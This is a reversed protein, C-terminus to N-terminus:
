GQRLSRAPRVSSIIALPTVNVITPLREDSGFSLRMFASRTMMSPLFKSRYGSRRGSPFFYGGARQGRTLETCVIKAASSSLASDTLRRAESHSYGSTFVSCMTPMASNIPGIRIRSQRRSRRRVAGATDTSSVARRGRAASERQCYERPQQQEHCSRQVVGEVRQELELQPKM